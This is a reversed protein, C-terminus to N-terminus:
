RTKRYELQYVIPIPLKESTIHVALRLRRGDPSLTFTSRRVGEDTHGEFVLAGNEVHASVRTPKDNAGTTDIPPGGVVVAPSRWEGFVVQVRDGPLSAIEIPSEPYVNDHIKSRAIGRKFYGLRDVVADIAEDVRADARSEDALTYVGVFHQVNPQRSHGYAAASLALLLVAIPVVIRGRQISRGM